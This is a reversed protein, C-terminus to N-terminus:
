DEEVFAARFGEYVDPDATVRVGREELATLSVYIHDEPPLGKNAQELWKDVSLTQGAPLDYLDLLLCGLADTAGRAAHKAPVVFTNVSVFARVYPPEDPNEAPFSETRVSLGEPFTTWVPDFGEPVDSGSNQYALWERLPIEPSDAEGDMYLRRQTEADLRLCDLPTHAGREIHTKPLQFGRVEWGASVLLWLGHATCVDYTEPVGRRGRRVATLAAPRCKCGEIDCGVNRPFAGLRAWPRFLGAPAAKETM